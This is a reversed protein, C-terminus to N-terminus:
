TMSLRSSPKRLTNRRAAIVHLASRRQAAAVHEPKPTINLTEHAHLCRASRHETLTKALHLRGL